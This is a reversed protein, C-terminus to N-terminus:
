QGNEEQQELEKLEKVKKDVMKKMKEVENEYYKLEDILKRKKYYTEVAKCGDQSPINIFIGSPEFVENCKDCKFHTKSGEIGQILLWRHKTM